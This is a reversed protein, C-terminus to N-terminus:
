VDIASVSQGVTRSSVQVQSTFVFYIYARVSKSVKEIDKSRTLVM